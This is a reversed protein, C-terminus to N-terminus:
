ARHSELLSSNLKLFLLYEKLLNKNMLPFYVSTIKVKGPGRRELCKGSGRVPTEEVEHCGM